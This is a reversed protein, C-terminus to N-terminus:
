KVTTLWLGIKGIIKFIAAWVAELRFTVVGLFWYKALFDNHWSFNAWNANGWANNSFWPEWKFSSFILFICYYCFFNIFSWLQTSKLVVIWWFIMPNGWCVRFSCSTIHLWHFFRAREIKPRQSAPEARNAWDASFVKMPCECLHLSAGSVMLCCPYTSVWMWVEDFNDAQTM